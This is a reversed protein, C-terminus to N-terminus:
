YDVPGMPESLAEPGDHASLIEQAIHHTKEAQEGIMRVRQLLERREAANQKLRKALDEITQAENPENGWGRAHNMAGKMSAGKLM